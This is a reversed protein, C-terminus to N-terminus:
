VVTDEFKHKACQTSWTHGGLRDKAKSKSVSSNRKQKPPEAREGLNTWMKLVILMEKNQRDHM